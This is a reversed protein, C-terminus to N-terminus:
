AARPWAAVLEAFFREIEAPPKSGVFEAVVQGDRFAKVAPVNRVEYRKWLEPCFDVVVPMTTSRDLVLPSFSRESVELASVVCLSRAAALRRRGDGRM